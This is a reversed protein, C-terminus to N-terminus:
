KSHPSEAFFAQAGLALIIGLSRLSERWNLKSSGGRRDAFVIPVEAVRGGRSTIRYLMEEQFSYGRSWIQDLQIQALRAVRYCRYGGSVDLAQLHLLVRSVTNVMGSIFQRSWPWNEVGGGPIYRSGIVVDYDLAKDMMDPLYRPHHSFDADMNLFYDYGHEIAYQMGAIIATGLGLKGARHVVHIREDKAARQDVYAGTGDPSNDDVVLVHANPAIALIADLLSPINDLENYTAM